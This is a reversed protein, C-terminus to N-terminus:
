NLVCDSYHSLFYSIRKILYGLRDTRNDFVLCRLTLRHSKGSGNYADGVRDGVERKKSANRPRWVVAVIGEYNLGATTARALPAANRDSIEIVAASDDHYNFVTRTSMPNAVCKCITTAEPDEEPPRPSRGPKLDEVSIRLRVELSHISHVSHKNPAFRARWTNDFQQGISAVHRAM